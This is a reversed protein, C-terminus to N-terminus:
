KLMQYQKTNRPQTIEELASFAANQADAQNHASMIVERLIKAAPEVAGLKGAEHAVSQKLYMAINEDSALALFQEIANTNSMLGAGSLYAVASGKAWLSQTQQLLPEFYKQYEEKPLKQRDALLRLLTCVLNYNIQEQRFLPDLLNKLEDAIEDLLGMTHSTLWEFHSILFEPSVQKEVLQITLKSALASDSDYLGQVFAVQLTAHQGEMMTAIWKTLTKYKLTSDIQHPESKHEIGQILRRFFATMVDINWDDQEGQQDIVTLLAFLSEPPYGWELLPHLAEASKPHLDSRRAIDAIARLLAGLVEPEFVINHEHHIYNLLDTLVLSSKPVERLYQILFDLTDSWGLLTFLWAYRPDAMALRTYDGESFAFNQQELWEIFQQRYDANSLAEAGLSSEAGTQKMVEYVFRNKEDQPLCNMAYSRLHFPVDNNLAVQQLTTIIEWPVPQENYYLVALDLRMKVAEVQNTILKYLQQRVLPRRKITDLARLVINYQRDCIPARVAVIWRDLIRKRLSEALNINDAVCATALTLYRLLIPENADGVDLIREVMLDALQEFESLQGLLLLIVERWNADLLYPSIVEWMKDISYIYRRRISAAALYEQFTLHVFNFQSEGREVLLGTRQRILDIFAHAQEEAEFESINFKPNHHLWRAIYLKLDARNVLVDRGQHESQMWFAVAELIYRRNQFYPKDVDKRQLRKYNEITNIIAESCKDYLRVREHPLEADKRHILAIIALLLPRRALDYIRENRLITNLLERENDEAERLSKERMHYWQHIYLQIDTNNYSLVIYHPFTRRSLPALDYGAIRSTIIFRNRSYLNIFSEVVSTVEQRQESATIEDLGDFCILCEGRQLNYEFFGKSCRLSYTGEAQEYIFNLLSYGEGETDRRPAFKRLPIFIPLGTFRVKDRLKASSIYDLILKKLATSKGAGPDGLVVVAPNTDFISDDFDLYVSAPRAVFHLVAVGVLFMILLFVTPLELHGFNYIQIVLTTM